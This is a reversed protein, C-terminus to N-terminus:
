IQYKEAAMCLKVTTPFILCCGNEKFDHDMLIENRYGMKLMKCDSASLKNQTINRFNKQVNQRKLMFMDQLFFRQLLGKGSIHRAMSIFRSIVGAYSLLNDQRDVIEAFKIWPSIREWVHNSDDKTKPDDEIKM